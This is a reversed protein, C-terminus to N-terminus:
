VHGLARRCIVRDYGQNMKQESPLALCFEVLRRDFFPRRHEIGFAAGQKDALELAYTLLGTNLRLHHHSRETPTRRLGRMAAVHVRQALGVRRAFRQNAIWTSRGTVPDRGNIRRWILRMWPPTLPVLGWDKLYKWAPRGRTRSVELLRSVLTIIRGSTLLEAIQRQGHSVTTDGDFGDLLVRVGNSHAEKLLEWHMFSNPGFYAEDTYEIVQDINSLPGIHDVPVFHSDFGGLDLVEQIYEREDCEPVRDFVFSFTHLPTASELLVRATCAVASSDLGGSLMSGIPYASRLRCRVAESFLQFFEEAYAANSQRRIERTPDLEWYCEIRLRGKEVMLFHAPPLRFVHQYLTTEQDTLLSAIYDALRSENLKRPIGPDVLLAKIESGFVLKEGPSHWYFFPKTGFHDRACFLCKKRGDWIAFAFVGLFKSVCREGWREYAKLILQSDTLEDLPRPLDMQSYLESRNDLRADATIVLTSNQDQWPLKETKSEDTTWLMCHGFGVGKEVFVGRDDSGRHALKAVMQDILPSDVSQGDFHVIGAIGSM